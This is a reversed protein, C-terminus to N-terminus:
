RRAAPGARRGLSAAPRAPSLSDRDAYARAAGAVEGVGSISPDIWGASVQDLVEEVLEPEINMAYGSRHDRGDRALPGLIAARGADRDLYELRLSNM